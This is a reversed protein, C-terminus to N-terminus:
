DPQALKQVLPLLAMQDHVPIVIAGAKRMLFSVASIGLSPDRPSGPGLIELLILRGGAGPIAGVVIRGGNEQRLELAPVGLRELTALAAAALAQHAAHPAPSGARRISTM